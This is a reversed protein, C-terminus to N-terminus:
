RQFPNVAASISIAAAARHEVNLKKLIKEVHKEVTRSATNLIISIERNTKGQALWLAIESERPTLAYDQLSAAPMKMQATALKANRHARDFHRRLLNMVLRDRETFARNRNCFGIGAAKGISATTPMSINHRFKGWRRYTDSISSRTFQAETFFDSIQLATQEGSKMFHSTFPHTLILSGMHAGLEATVCPSSEVFDELSPPQNVGVNYEPWFFYESPVLKLLIDPIEARFRRLDRFDYLEFVANNLADYDKHSLRM